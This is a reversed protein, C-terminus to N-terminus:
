KIELAGAWAPNELAMRNLYERVAEETCLEITCKGDRAKRLASLVGLKSKLELPIVVVPRNNM